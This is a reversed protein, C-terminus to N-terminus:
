IYAHHHFSTNSLSVNPTNQNDNNPDAEEADEVEFDGEQADQM